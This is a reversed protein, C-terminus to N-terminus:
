QNTPSWFMSFSGTQASPMVTGCPLYRLFDLCLRLPISTFVAVVARSPRRSWNGIGHGIFCNRETVEGVHAIPAVPPSRGNTNALRFPACLYTPPQHGIRRHSM